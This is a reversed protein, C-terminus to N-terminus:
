AHPRPMYSARSAWAALVREAAEQSPLVGMVRAQLLVNGIATAEAPGALIPLNLADALKQCLYANRCGGSVIHVRGFRRGTLRSLLDVAAKHEAAMSDFIVRAFEGPTAPPPIGADRCGQRIEALMNVPAHFRPQSLPIVSRIAAAEAQRVLEEHSIGEGEQEWLRGCEQIVWLGMVSTFLGWRHGALGLAVCGTRVAEPSIVPEDSVSGLMAYTGESLFVTEADLPSAALSAAATDHSATVAVPVGILKPHPAREKQIRALVSPEHILWPLFHHPIGMLDLLERDWKGTRLNRLQSATALTWDTATLGCLDHHILDAIHLLTAARKLADPEQRAMAYLQCLTVIPLPGVGVRAVLQEPSIRDFYGDPIRESRADRYSVPPYFLEGSADLLGFDQAWADCSVSMIPGEAQEAARALGVRMEARIKQWDWRKHGDVFRIAHDFRHAVELSLRDAELRGLVVRGNSAGLDIAAFTQATM